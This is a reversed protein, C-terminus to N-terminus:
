TTTFRIASMRDMKNVGRALVAIEDHIGWSRRRRGRMAEGWSITVEGAESRRHVIGRPGWAAGGGFM